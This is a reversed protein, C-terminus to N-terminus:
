KKTAEKSSLFHFYIGFLPPSRSQQYSSPFVVDATPAQLKCELLEGWWIATTGSSYTLLPLSPSLGFNVPCTITCLIKNCKPDEM